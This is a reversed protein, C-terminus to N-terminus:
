QYDFLGSGKEFFKKVYSQPQEEKNIKIVYENSDNNNKYRYSLYYENMISDFFKKHLFNDQIDLTFCVFNKDLRPYTPSDFINETVFSYELGIEKCLYKFLDEIQKAFYVIQNSDDLQDSFHEFGRKRLFSSFLKINNENAYKESNAFLIKAFMINPNLSLMEREITQKYNETIYQNYITEYFKEKKLLVSVHNEIMDNIKRFSENGFKEYCVVFSLEIDYSDLSSFKCNGVEFSVLEDEINRILNNQFDTISNVFIYNFTKNPKKVTKIKDYIYKNINIESFQDEIKKMVTNHKLTQEIHKKIIQKHVGKYTERFKEKLKEGSSSLINFKRIMDDIIKNIIQDSKEDSNLLNYIKTGHIRIKKFDEFLQDSFMNKNTYATEDSKKENDLKKNEVITIAKKILIKLEEVDSLEFNDNEKNCVEELNSNLERLKYDYDICNTLYTHGNSKEKYEDDIIKCATDKISGFMNTFSKNYLSLKHDNIYDLADDMETELEMSNMPKMSKIVDLIKECESRFGIDDSSVISYYKKEQLYTRGLKGLRETSILIKGSFLGYVHGLSTDISHKNQNYYNEFAVNIPVDSSYDFIRTVLQPKDHRDIFNGLTEFKKLISIMEDFNNSNLIILHSISYVFPLVFWNDETVGECDLIILTMDQSIKLAIYDIGNTCKSQEHSVNFVNAHQDAIHSILCNVFTSKGTKPFGVTSVIVYKENSELPCNSIFKKKNEVILKGFPTM